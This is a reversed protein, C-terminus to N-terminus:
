GWETLGRRMCAVSAAMVADGGVQIIVQSEKVEKRPQQAGKLGKSRCM